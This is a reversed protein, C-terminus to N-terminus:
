IHILSLEDKLIEGCGEAYSSLGKLFVPVDAGLSFCIDEFNLSNLNEGHYKCLFKLTTACNSSGGGLGAGIPINKKLKVKFRQNKNFKHNFWNIAEFISNNKLGLNANTEIEDIPNEEYEIEDFIDILQYHTTIQHYGNPLKRLVNLFSNIKGCSKYRFM